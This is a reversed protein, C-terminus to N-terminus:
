ELDQSVAIAPFHPACAIYPKLLLTALFRPLSGEISASTVAFQVESGKM